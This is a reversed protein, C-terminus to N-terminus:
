VCSVDLDVTSVGIHVNDLIISDKIRVGKGIQVRPGISVNPGIKFLYFPLHWHSPDGRRKWDKRRVKASPDVQASPHIYVAGIIEPGAPARKVLREPNEKAQQELYTANAGIASRFICVNCRIRTLIQGLWNLQDWWENVRCNQNTAM